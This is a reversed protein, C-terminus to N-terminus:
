SVDAKVADVLGGIEGDCTSSIRQDARNSKVAAAAKRNVVALASRAKKLLRVRKRGESGAVTDLRGAVPMRPAEPM